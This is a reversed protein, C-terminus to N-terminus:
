SGKPRWRSLTRESGVPCAFDTPRPQGPAAMVTCLDDGVWQMIGLQVQGKVHGCQHLYDIHIPDAREDIRVLADIMLQGGFTVKVQNETGSRLGTGLMM